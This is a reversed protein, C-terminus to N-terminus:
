SSLLIFVGTVIMLAPIPPRVSARGGCERSKLSSRRPPPKPARAAPPMNSIWSYLPCSASSAAPNKSFNEELDDVSPAPLRPYEVLVAFNKKILWMVAGATSWLYGSPAGRVGMELCSMAPDLMPHVHFYELEEVKMRWPKM